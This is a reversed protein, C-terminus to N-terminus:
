SGNTESRVVAHPSEAGADNLAAFRDRWDPSTLM